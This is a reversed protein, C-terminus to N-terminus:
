YNQMKIVLLWSVFCCLLFSLQLREICDCLLVEPSIPSAMLAVSLSLPVKGSLPFQGQCGPCCLLVGSVNGMSTGLEQLIEPKTQGTLMQQLGCVCSIQMLLFLLPAPVDPSFGASLEVARSNNFESETKNKGFSNQCLSPLVKTM